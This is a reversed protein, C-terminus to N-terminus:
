GTKGNLRLKSIDPIVAVSQVAPARMKQHVAQRAMDLV